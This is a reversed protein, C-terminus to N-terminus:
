RRPISKFLHWAKQKGSETELLAPLDRFAVSSRGFVRIASDVPFETRYAQGLTRASATDAAVVCLPDLGEVLLFLAQPDLAVAEGADGAQEARDVQDCSSAECPVLTAYTCADRGYGLAAFSKEIANRTEPGPPQMSISLIVCMGNEPANEIYGGFLEAISAAGAEYINSRPLKKM